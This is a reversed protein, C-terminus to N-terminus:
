LSGLESLSGSPGAAPIAEMVRAAEDARLQAEVRFSGDNMPRQFVWRSPARSVDDPEDLARTGEVGRVIRELQSATTNKAMEIFAEESAPTAGRCIARVQSYTM